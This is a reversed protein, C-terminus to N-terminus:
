IKKLSCAIFPLNIRFFGFNFTITKTECVVTFKPFAPIGTPTPTLTITPTPSVTTTPVLTPTPSSTVTPVPTNTPTPTDTPTPTIMDTPTPVGNTPTPVIVPESASLSNQPQSVNRLVFDSANDDNDEGNGAFEDAGGTGMSFATSGSTAKREISQGAAPTSPINGEGLSHLPVGVTVADILIGTNQAGERLGISNNNSITGGTTRDCSLSADLVTNCWLFYGYAPIIEGVNFAVINDDDAGSSTRKVLRFDGLDIDSSTPNYIEIFDASTSAGTGEIQVESILVHGATASEAREFTTFLIAVGFILLIIPLLWSLNVKKM